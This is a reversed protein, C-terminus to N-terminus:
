VSNLALALWVNDDHLAHKLYRVGECQQIKEEIVSLKKKQTQEVYM